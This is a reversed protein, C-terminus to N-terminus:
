LLQALERELWALGAPFGERELARYDTRATELLAEAEGRRTRVQALALARWAGAFMAELESDGYLGAAKGFRDAAVSWEGERMGALGLILYGHASAERPFRDIDLESETLRRVAAAADGAAIDIAAATYRCAATFRHSVGRLRAVEEVDAEAQELEHRAAAVWDPDAATRVSEEIVIRLARSLVLNTRNIVRDALVMARTVYELTGVPDERTELLGTRLAISEAFASEAGKLDLCRRRTSGIHAWVESQRWEDSAEKALQLAREFRAIVTRLSGGGPGKWRRGEVLSIHDLVHALATKTENVARLDDNDELSRELEEAARGLSTAASGFDGRTHLAHNYLAHGRLRELRGRTLADGASEVNAMAELLDKERGMEIILRSQNRALLRTLDHATAATVDKGWTGAPWARLVLVAAEYLSAEAAEVSDAVGRESLVNLARSGLWRPVALMVGRRRTPHSFEVGGNEGGLRVVVAQHQELLRTAEEAQGADDGWERRQRLQRWRAVFDEWSSGAWLGAALLFERSREDQELFWEAACREADVAGVALDGLREPSEAGTLRPLVFTAFNDIALPTKLRAALTDIHLDCLDVKPGMTAGGWARHFRLHARIVDRRKADPLEPPLVEPRTAEIIRKVEPSVRELGALVEDRICVAVIDSHKRTRLWEVIGLFWRIRGPLVFEQGVPDDILYGVPGDRGVLWRREDESLPEFRRGSPYSVEVIQFVRDKDLAELLLRRGTATKGSGARGALTVWVGRRAFRNGIECQATLRTWNGLEVHLQLLRHFHQIRVPSLGCAGQGAAGSELVDKLPVPGPRGPSRASLRRHIALDNDDRCLFPLWLAAAHDPDEPAPHGLWSSASWVRDQPRLTRSVGLGGPCAGSLIPGVLPIEWLRFFHRLPDRPSYEHLVWGFKERRALGYRWGALNETSPIPPRTLVVRHARFEEERMLWSILWAGFSHGILIPADGLSSAFRALHRKFRRAELVCLGPLVMM